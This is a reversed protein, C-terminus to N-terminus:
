ARGVKVLKEFEQDSIFHNKHLKRMLIKGKHKQLLTKLLELSEMPDYGKIMRYTVMPPRDDIVRMRDNSLRAYM